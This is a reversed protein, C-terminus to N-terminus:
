LQFHGAMKRGSVSGPDLISNNAARLHLKRVLIHGEIIVELNPITAISLLGILRRSLDPIDPPFSDATRPDSCPFDQLIHAELNEVKQEFRLCIM